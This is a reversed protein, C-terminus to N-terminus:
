ATAGDRKDRNEGVRNSWRSDCLGAPADRSKGMRGNIAALVMNSKFADKLLRHSKDGMVTAVGFVKDFQGQGTIVVFSEAANPEFQNSVFYGEYTDFALKAADAALTPCSQWGIISFLLAVELRNM